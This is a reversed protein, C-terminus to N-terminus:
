RMFGLDSTETHTNAHTHARVRTIWNNILYPQWRCANIEIWGDLVSRKWLRCGCMFVRGVHERGKRRESQIEACNRILILKIPCTCHFCPIEKKKKMSFVSGYASLCGWPQCCTTTTYFFFKRWLVSCHPLWTRVAYPCNSKCLLSHAKM